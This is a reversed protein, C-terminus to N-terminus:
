TETDLGVTGIMLSPRCTYDAHVLACHFGANGFGGAEELRHSSVYEQLECCCLGTTSAHSYTLRADGRLDLTNYGCMACRAAVCLLCLTLSVFLLLDHEDNM